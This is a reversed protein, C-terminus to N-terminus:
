RERESGSACRQMKSNKGKKEAVEKMEDTWWVSGKRGKGHGKGSQKRLQGM